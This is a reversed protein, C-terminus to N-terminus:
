AAARQRLQCIVAEAVAISSAPNQGTILTGDVVTNATFNEAHKPVGGLSILRSELLFPVHSCLGIATEEADTFCTFRKGRILPVGSAAEARLLAAPGHCVLSLPKGAHYFAEVLAKVSDDQAFDDMTGHGGAFFVADFDQERLSSLVRTHALMEQAHADALFRRTSPTQASADSSRPDIPAAGGKPSAITVACRTDAFVYYPAAVEELWLGTPISADGMRASSTVVLLMRATHM